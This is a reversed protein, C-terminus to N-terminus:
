QENQCSFKSNATFCAGVVKMEANDFIFDRAHRAVADFPATIAFQGLIKLCSRGIQGLDCSRVMSFEWGLFNSFDYITARDNGSM